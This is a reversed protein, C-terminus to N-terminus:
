HRSGALINQFVLWLDEQGAFGMYGLLNRLSIYFRVHWFSSTCSVFPLISLVSNSNRTLRAIALISRAEASSLRGM